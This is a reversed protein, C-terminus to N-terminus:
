QYQSSRVGRVYRCNDLSRWCVNGSSFNVLWASGPSRKDSSRCWQKGDFVPDIYLGDIKIRGISELLSALEELTPLRRDSYGAFGDNNLKRVYDQAEKFTMKTGSGSQQWMLGTAHDTVTGDRNNEFDNESRRCKNWWRDCLGHKRLMAKVDDDSLIRPESRLRYEPESRSLYRNRTGIMIITLLISVSVTVGLVILRSHGVYKSSSPLASVFKQHLQYRAYDFRTSPIKKVM